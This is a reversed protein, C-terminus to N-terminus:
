SVLCHLCLRAITEAVSVSQHMVITGGNVVMDAVHQNSLFEIVADSLTIGVSKKVKREYKYGSRFVKSNDYKHLYNPTFM